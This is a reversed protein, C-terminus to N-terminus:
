WIEPKLEREMLRKVGQKPPLGEFLIQCVIQSIPMEISYRDSLAKMSKSTPVGEAVMVMSSLIDSLSRGKGIEEGM